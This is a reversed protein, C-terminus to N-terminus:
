KWLTGKPSLGDGRTEVMPKKGADISEWFRKRDEHSREPPPVTKFYSITSKPINCRNCPEKSLITTASVCGPCARWSGPYRGKFMDKLPLPFDGCYCCMLKGYDPPNNACADCMM